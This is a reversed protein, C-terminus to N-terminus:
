RYLQHEAIYAAVGATVYRGLPKRDAVADRIQTSSVDEAVTPLLFVKGDVGEPFEKKLQTPLLDSAKPLSFGPRSAVIFKCERMLAAPDRWSGLERFSDVGVIFYLEPDRHEARLIEKLRRVSNVSYNPVGSPNPAELQSAVFGKEGSEALALQLMALRDAYSTIPQGQKHPPVSAPIFYISQLKFRPDALAAKAVALHGRHIPDFTGGYFAFNSSV